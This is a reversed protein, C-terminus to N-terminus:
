CEADNRFPIWGDWLFRDHSHAEKDVYITLELPGTKTREITRLRSRGSECLLKSNLIPGNPAQPIEFLIRGWLSSCGMAVAHWRRCVRLVRQLADLNSWVHIMFIKSLIEDPIADIPAM